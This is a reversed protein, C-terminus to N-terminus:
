ARRGAAQQAQVFDALSMSPRASAEVKAAAPRYYAIKFVRKGEAFDLKYSHQAKYGPNAQALVENIRAKAADIVALDDKIAQPLDDYNFSNFVLKQKAM